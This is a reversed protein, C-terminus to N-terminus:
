NEPGPVEWPSLLGAKKWGESLLWSQPRCIPLLEDDDSLWYTQAEDDWGDSYESSSYPDYARGPLKKDEGHRRWNNRVYCLGHRVQTPSTLQKAHYRDAFVQGTRRRGLEKSLARNIHKAASIEFGQMGRALAREDDAEVILHIHNGQISVDCIRFDHRPVASFIMARQIARYLNRTRLRGVAPVVRLVVHVPHTKKLRPRKKHRESSRKSKPPRGAGKRKGGWTRFEFSRQTSASMKIEDIDGLDSL